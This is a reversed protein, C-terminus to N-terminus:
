YYSFGGEYKVFEQLKERPIKEEPLPEIWYKNAVKEYKQGKIGFLRQTAGGLHIAQKGKQKIYNGLHMGYAGAGIIAIDFDTEDIQKYMSDLAEFWDKFKANDKGGIGQVAKIVRLDFKPLANPNKFLKERKKYQIKVTEAFPHIVLVKKGELYKTWPHLSTFVCGALSSIPVLTASKNYTNLIDREDMDKFRWVGILDINPVINLVESAFRTLRTNDAPFFGSTFYIRDVAKKPYKIEVKNKHAFFYGIISLEASGFRTILCPKGTQLLSLIKANADEGSYIFRDGYHTPEPRLNYKDLFKLRTQKNPILSFIGKLVAKKPSLTLAYRIRNIVKRRM